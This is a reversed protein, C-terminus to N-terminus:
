GHFFSEGKPTLILISGDEIQLINTDQKNFNKRLTYSITAEEIVEKTLADLIESQSDDVTRTNEIQQNATLQQNNTSNEIYGQLGTIKGDKDRLPVVTITRTIPRGDKHIWTFPGHWTEGKSVQNLLYFFLDISYLPLLMVCSQFMLEEPTYGSLDSCAGSISTFIGALNMTWHPIPQCDVASNETPDPKEDRDCVLTQYGEGNHLKEPTAVLRNSTSSKDGRGIELM